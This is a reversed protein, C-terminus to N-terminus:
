SKGRLISWVQALRGEPAKQPAKETRDTLLATAQSRWHDRDQELGRSIERERDLLERLLTNEREAAELKVQYVGNAPTVGLEPETGPGAGPRAM